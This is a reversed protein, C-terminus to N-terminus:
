SKKTKRVVKSYEKKAIWEYVIEENTLNVYDTVIGQIFEYKNIHLKDQSISLNKLNVTCLNYKIENNNISFQLEIDIGKFGQNSLDEEISKELNNTRKEYIYLVLESDMEFTQYNLKIQNKNSLFSVVPNIIVAVVFISYVGKIYKSINGNPLIVDIIIGCMVIGLISLVYKSM